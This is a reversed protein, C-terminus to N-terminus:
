DNKNKGLKSYYLIKFKWLILKDRKTLLVKLLGGPVKTHTM